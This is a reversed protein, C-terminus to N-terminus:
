AHRWARGSGHQQRAATAAMSVCAGRRGAAGPVGALQRSLLDLAQGALHDLVQQEIAPPHHSPSATTITGSPSHIRATISGSICCRVQHASHSATAKVGAGQIAVCTAKPRGTDNTLPLLEEHCTAGPRQAQLPAGAAAAGSGISCHATLLADM